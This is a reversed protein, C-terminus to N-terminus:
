TLELREVLWRGDHPTLTMVARYPGAPSIMRRPVLRSYVVTAVVDVAYLLVVSSNV